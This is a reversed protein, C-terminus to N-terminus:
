SEQPGSLPRPGAYGRDRYALTATLTTMVTGKQEDLAPRDLPREDIRSRMSPSDSSAEAIRTLARREAEAPRDDSM